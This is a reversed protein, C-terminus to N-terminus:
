HAATLLFHQNVAQYSTLQILIDNSAQGQIAPTATQRDMKTATGTDFKAVGSSSSAEVLCVLSLRFALSEIEMVSHLIRLVDAGSKALMYECLYM